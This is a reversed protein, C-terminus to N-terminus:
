NFYQFNKNYWYQFVILAWMQAAADGPNSSNLRNKLKQIEYLSFINQEKIFDPALIEQNIFNNLDKQLWKLLPVEFGHKERQYLAPPLLNKFTDQVIKKRFNGTIKYDSPLQCVFNVVEYDLFPTRVELSNAMSMLDVKTLMDGALVMKLDATLMDNIQNKQNSIHQLMNNKRLQYEQLPINFNFLQLAKKESLISCWLWYRESNNLRLGESFKFLQRFKNTLPNSRSQPLIKLIPYASKILQLMLSNQRARLEAVHKQYGAFMEDAGDGSLAVTVHKRTHMSLIYVAIASSDAFPEDFYDLVKFLVEFLDDNTLKFTTHNTNFHKAVLEAYHTEDFFPEDKYGISFTNIRNVYKSALGVIVSSDIGGSLFAGLPVDSILRREVAKDLLSYLQQQANEYSIITKKEQIFQPLEYYRKIDITKNQIFCFTGPTIKIIENYISYEPLIYNLQFYQFVTTTDLTFKVNYPVIAKIESAFIIFDTNKYLYLPKIGMRDRAIFLTDEKSDYIAFAFFGNLKQLCREKEEAYLKIIVETDSNSRFTHGKQALQRKLELFNFIEGNFVITFRGSDDTFPQSAAESTDIISLRAHGLAVNNNFYCGNTDPGRLKLAEVAKKVLPLKTKGFESLAIIGTIGCM